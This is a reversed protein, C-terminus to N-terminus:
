AGWYVPQDEDLPPEYVVHEGGAIEVREQAIAAWFEDIVSM